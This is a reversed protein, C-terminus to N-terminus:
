QIISEIEKAASDLTEKVTKGLLLAEHLEGQIIDSIQSYFPSKPRSRAGYAIEMLRPYVPRKAVVDPETLLKLITPTQLGYLARHKQVEWGSMFVAFKAAEDKHKSFNNVSHSWGGLCTAHEGQPFRPIVDVGVTGVIKSGPDDEALNWVYNWNRHFIAHGETFITRGEDLTMTLIGPQVIKYKHILDVMFQLAEVGEEENFLVKKGTKDLFEGNNSWLYEVFNCSLQEGRSFDTIFGFLEPPDQLKQCIKVLDMWTDPADMGAEELIDRRYYFNGIDNIYPVGYIHGGVTQADIMAPVYKKQEEPPFHEDLPMLWGPSAFEPPWIVDINIVDISGDAAAFMTVNRDHMAAAGAPGEVFVIQINPNRSEYLKIMADVAERKIDKGETFHLTIKEQAIGVNTLIFSGGALVLLMMGLTFWSIVRKYM